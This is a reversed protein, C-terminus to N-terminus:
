AVDLRDLQQAAAEVADLEDTFSEWAARDSPDDTELFREWYARALAYGLEVSPSAAWVPSGVTIARSPDGLDCHIAVAYAYAAQVVDEHEFHDVVDDLLELAHAYEGDKRLLAAVRVVEWGRRHADDSVTRSFVRELLVDVLNPYSM